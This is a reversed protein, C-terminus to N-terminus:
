DSISDDLLSIKINQFEGTYTFGTILKNDIHDGIALYPGADFDISTIDKTKPDYNILMYNNLDPHGPWETYVSYTACKEDSKELLLKKVQGTRAHGLPALNIIEKFM